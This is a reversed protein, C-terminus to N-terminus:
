EKKEKILFEHIDKEAEELKSKSDGNINHSLLALMSKCM